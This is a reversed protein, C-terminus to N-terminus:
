VESVFKVMWCELLSLLTWPRIWSYANPPCRGGEGGGGEVERKRGGKGRGEKGTGEGGTREGRM